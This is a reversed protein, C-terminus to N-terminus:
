NKKKLVITYYQFNNIFFKMFKDELYFLLKFIKQGLFSNPILFKQHNSSFSRWPYFEIDAEDEFQKWWSIPHCFFYYDNKKLKKYSFLLKIKDIITNPNSYVIIIPVNKKSISLLRRIVKNQKSKHIHYITHMSLICDFYNRKFKINLLDQCYFKGKQGIKLKAFKIADRSFDVCHRYHFNKSYSLYEKYQIPGSAFDLINTGKKPIYRLIRKRCKSVYESSYFRLDESIKADKFYRDNKKWGISNYFKHVSKM